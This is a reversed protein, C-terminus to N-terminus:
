RLAYADEANHCFVDELETDTFLGSEEIYRMSQGYNCGVLAYPIDSGWILKKSGTIKSAAAIFKLATPYPYKEPAVFCPLAALDFWVNPLKLLEIEERFTKESEPGTNPLLLHCVVIRMDPYRKAVAAVAQPQHSETGYAGIDLTLAAGASHVAAFLDAVVPGDLAFSTHYSMLGAGNSVEFKVVTAKRETLFRELLSQANKCYPDVTVAPVFMDPRKQAEDLSYENQFGYLGGELLVAKGVGNKEMASALSDATFARDGFEPPILTFVEGDAWRAKGGGVGRLEGRSSFGAIVEILHCHADIKKM